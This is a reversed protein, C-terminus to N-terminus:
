RTTDTVTYYLYYEGNLFQIEPAWLGANGTAWSPRTNFADGEYTWNVLDASRLMPILHFNFDNGTKDTDNLPDTTCYMYWDNDGATQGRIISPDACSEVMGDNPIKISVPNTYKAKAALAGTNLVRTDQLNQAALAPSNGLLAIVIISILRMLKTLM